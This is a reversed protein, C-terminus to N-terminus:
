KQIQRLMKIRDLVYVELETTPKGDDFASNCHNETSYNFIEPLINEYYYEKLMEIGDEELM